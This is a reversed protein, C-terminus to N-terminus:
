KSDERQSAALAAVLAKLEVMEARLATNESRLNAISAADSTRTFRDFLVSLRARRVGDEGTKISSWEMREAARAVIHGEAFKRADDLMACGPVDSSILVDGPAIDRGTDIVWMEGNGVSMILHPNEDSAPQTSEHLGLYAGVCAPDNAVQTAEIGCTIEADPQDHRLRNEGTLRVLAFREIEDNTWGYHSGTFANYSVTAGSVSISGETVGDQQISVVVGDSTTRNFAAVSGSSRAVDLPTDPVSVGIGVFGQADLTMRTVNGGTRFQLGNNNNSDYVIGGSEASSADG